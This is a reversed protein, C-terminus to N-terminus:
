NRNHYSNREDVTKTSFLRLYLSFPPLFVEVGSMSTANEEGRTERVETEGEEKGEEHKIEPVLPRLLLLLLLLLSEDLAASGDDGKAAGRTTTEGRALVEEGREEDEKM